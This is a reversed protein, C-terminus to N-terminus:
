SQIAKITNKWWYSVAPSMDSKFPLYFNIRDLLGSYKKLALPAIEHPQGTIAVTDLIEDTILKPMDKFNGSSSLKNLEKAVNGWGHMELVTSYTPTSSYFAVQSRVFEKSKQMSDSDPGTIVFVSGSISVDKINRDNSECGVKINPVIFDEIYEKTHLPHVHFGDCVEGAAKCLSENVGAIYIPIDPYDIPGPDFFPTM